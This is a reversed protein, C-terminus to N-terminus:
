AKPEIPKLEIEPIKEFPRNGWDKFGPAPDLHRWFRPEVLLRGKEDTVPKRFHSTSEDMLHMLGKVDFSLKSDEAISGIIHLSAQIASKASEPSSEKASHIFSNRAARAQDTLAYLEDSIHGQQWLREIRTSSSWTRTDSLFGKRRKMTIGPIPPGALVKDKWLQEIVLEITTWGLILSREWKENSYATCAPLFVTPLNGPLKKSLALGSKHHAVYREQCIASPEFLRISEDPGARATRLDQSLKSYRGKPCNHRHYGWFNLLGPTIDDPAVEEVLMGGLLMDTLHRNFIALAKKKSIEPCAPLVLTGDFLVILSLPAIGVDLNLTSRFLKAAEYTGNNIQDIPPAWDEGDFTILRFPAFCGGWVPITNKERM